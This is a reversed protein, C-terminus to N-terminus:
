VFPEKLIANLVLKNEIVKEVKTTFDSLIGSYSKNSYFPFDSRLIEVGYMQMKMHHWITAAEEGMLFSYIIRNCMVFEARIMNHDDKPLIETKFSELDACTEIRLLYHKNELSLIKSHLEKLKYIVIAYDAFYYIKKMNHEKILHACFAKTFRSHGGLLVSKLSSLRM